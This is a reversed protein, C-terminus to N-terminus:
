KTLTYLYILVVVGVHGKRQFRPFSELERKQILRPASQVRNQPVSSPKRGPFYVICMEYLHNVFHNVAANISMLEVKMKVKWFSFLLGLGFGTVSSSSIKKISHLLQPFPETPLTNVSCAHTSSNSGWYGRKFFFFFENVPSILHPAIPYRINVVSRCM